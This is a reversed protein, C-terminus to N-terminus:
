ATEKNIGSKYDAWAYLIWGYEYPRCEYNIKFGFLSKGLCRHLGNLGYVCCLGRLLRSIKLPERREIDRWIIDQDPFVMNEGLENAGWLWRMGLEIARTHDTKNAKDSALVAMPAM